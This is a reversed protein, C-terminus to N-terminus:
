AEESISVVDWNTTSANYVCGVYMLKSITTTTPKTTGIWIYDNNWTLARATGNDKIRIILKSGDVGNTPKQITMPEALATVSTQNYISADVNLSSTSATTAATLATPQAVWSRTGGTTSSLVYGNTGPNGLPQEFDGRTGDALAYQTHDDDALGTLGGHDLYASVDQNVDFWVKTTIDEWYAQSAPLFDMLVFIGDTTGNLTLGGSISKRLRTQTNAVPPGSVELSEVIAIQVKGNGDKVVKMLHASLRAATNIPTANIDFANVTFEPEGNMQEFSCHYVNVTGVNVDTTTIQVIGRFWENSIYADTLEPIPFGNSDNGGDNSSFGNVTITDVFGPTEVGTSRDVKTGTLTITGNPDTGTFMAIIVKGINKTVNIPAVSSLPVGTALLEIGGHLGQVANSKDIKDVYTSLADPISITTTAGGGAPIMSVDLKGNADLKPILGSSAAGASMDIPQESEWTTGNSRLVADDNLTADGNTVDTADKISSTGTGISVWATGNWQDTTDTTENYITYGKDSAGVTLADREATTLLPFTFKNGNIEVSNFKM